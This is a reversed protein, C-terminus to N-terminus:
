RRCFSDFSHELFPKCGSVLHDHFPSYILEILTFFFTYCSSVVVLPLLPGNSSVYENLFSFGALDSEPIQNIISNMCHVSQVVVRMIDQDQEDDSDDVLFLRSSADSDYFEALSVHRTVDPERKTDMNTSTVLSSLTSIASGCLGIVAVALPLRIRDRGLRDLYASLGGSKEASGDITDSGLAVRWLCLINDVLAALQSQSLDSVLISPYVKGSNITFLEKSLLLGIECSVIATTDSRRRALRLRYQRTMNTPKTAALTTFNRRQSVLIDVLGTFYQKKLKETAPDDVLCIISKMLDKLSCIIEVDEDNGPEEQNSEMMEFWRASLSLVNSIMSLCDASGVYREREEVSIYECFIAKINKILSYILIAYLRERATTTCQGNEEERFLADEEINRSSGNDLSSVRDLSSDGHAQETITIVIRTLLIVIDFSKGNKAQLCNLLITLICPNSVKLLSPNISERFCIVDEFWELIEDTESTQCYRIAFRKLYTGHVSLFNDVLEVHNSSPLGAPTDYREFLMLGIAFLADMDGNSLPAEEDIKSVVELFQEQARLVVSSAQVEHSFAVLCTQSIEKWYGEKRKRSELHPTLVVEIPSSQPQNLCDITEDIFRLGEREALLSETVNPSIKSRWLYFNAILWLCRAKLSFWCKQSYLDNDISREINDIPTLLNPLLSSLFSGDSDFDSVIADEEECRKLRLEAHLVDLAFLDVATLLAEPPVKNNSLHWSQVLCDQLKRRTAM